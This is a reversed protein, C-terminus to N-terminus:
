ETSQQSFLEHHSIAEGLGKCRKSIGQPSALRMENVVKQVNLGCIVLSRVVVQKVPTLCATVRLCHTLSSLFVKFQCLERWTAARCLYNEVLHVGDKRQSVTSDCCANMKLISVLHEMMSCTPDTKYAM